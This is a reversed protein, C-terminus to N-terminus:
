SLKSLTLNCIFVCFHIRFRWSVPASVFLSAKKGEGSGAVVSRQCGCNNDAENEKRAKIYAYM